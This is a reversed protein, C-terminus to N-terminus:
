QELLSLALDQFEAKTHVSLKEYIRSTHSKITGVAVCLERAIEAQSRGEILLRVIESERQTLQGRATLRLVCENQKYAVIESNRAEDFASPIGAGSSGPSPQAGFLKESVLYPIVFCTLVCAVAIVLAWHSKVGLANILFSVSNWCGLTVGTPILINVKLVTSYYVTVFMMTSGTFVFLISTMSTSLTDQLSSLGHVAAVCGAGVGALAVQVIFYTSPVAKGFAHPMDADYLFYGLLIVMPMLPTFSTTLVPFMKFLHSGTLLFVYGLFVTLGLTLATKCTLLLNVWLQTMPAGLAIVFVLLAFALGDSIDLSVLLNIIAVLIGVLVPFVLSKNGRLTVGFRYGVFALVFWTLARTAVISLQQGQSLNAILDHTYFLLVVNWLMTTGM